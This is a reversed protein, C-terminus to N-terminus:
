DPYGIISRDLNSGVVELVRTLLTLENFMRNSNLYGLASVTYLEEPLHCTIRYFIVLTEYYRVAEM